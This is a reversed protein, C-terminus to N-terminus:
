YTNRWLQRKRHWTKVGKLKLDYEAQWRIAGPICWVHVREATGLRAYTCPISDPFDKIIMENEEFEASDLYFELVGNEPLQAPLLIGQNFSRTADEFFVLLAMCTVNKLLTGMMPVSTIYRKNVKDCVESIVTRRSPVDNHKTMYYNLVGLATNYSFRHIDALLTLSIRTSSAIQDVTPQLITVNKPM